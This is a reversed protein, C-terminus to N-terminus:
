DDAPSTETEADTDADPDDATDPTPPASYLIDRSASYRTM